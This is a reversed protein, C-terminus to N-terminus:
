RSAGNRHFPTKRTRAVGALVIGLDHADQWREDPDKKLCRAIADNLTQPIRCFYSIPRPELTSIARGLSGLDSGEFAKHGTLMEYLLAGFSFIDSRKDPDHGQWREPAMYTPTGAVIGCSRISTDAPSSHDQLRVAIGFDILKVGFPTCIVNGPKLDSHIVGCRHAYKLANLIQIGMPLVEESPLSGRNLLTSISKGELLEEEIYPIRRWTGVSHIQCINPHQLRAAIRGERMFREIAVDSLRRGPESIKLAIRRRLSPDYAELVRGEAGRGIERVTQFRGFRKARRPTHSALEAFEVERIASQAQELTQQYQGLALM